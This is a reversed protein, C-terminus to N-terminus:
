DEAQRLYEMYRLVAEVKEQAEFASFQMEFDDNNHEIFANRVTELDDLATELRDKIQTLTNANM